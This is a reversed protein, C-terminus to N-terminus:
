AYKPDLLSNNDWDYNQNYEKIICIFENLFGKVIFFDLLFNRESSRCHRKEPLLSPPGHKGETCFQVFALFCFKQKIPKKHRKRCFSQIYLIQSHHLYRCVELLHDNNFTWHIEIM